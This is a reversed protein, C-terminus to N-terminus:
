NIEYNFSMKEGSRTLDVSLRKAERLQQFIQLAKEASDLEVGNVSSVVDGVKMGLNALLSKPRIMRVVFGETQGNVVYPEMRAQKLVTGLNSRTKDIEAQSIEWRNGGLDRIGDGADSQPRTRSSRSATRTPSDSGKADDFLLEAERGDGQLILVRSREISLLEAGGPLSDGPRYVLVKGAAEILALPDVGGEVTGHLRLNVAQVPASTSVDTNDIMETLTNGRASPDFINGALIVGIDASGAVATTPPAVVVSQADGNGSALLWGSLKATSYGAALGFLAITLLLLARIQKTNVTLM